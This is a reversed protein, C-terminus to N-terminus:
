SNRTSQFNNHLRFSKVCGSLKKGIVEQPSSKGLYACNAPNSVVLRMDTANDVLDVAACIIPLNHKENGTGMLVPSNDFFCKLLGCTSEIEEVSKKKEDLLHEMKVLESIDVLCDLFIPNGEVSKGIYVTDGQAYKIEGSPLSAKTRASLVTDTGIIELEKAIWEEVEKRDAGIDRILHKGVADEEKMNWRKLQYKSCWLLKLDAVEKVYEHVNIISNCYSNAAELWKLREPQGYSQEVFTICVSNSDFPSFSLLKESKIKLHASIPFPQDRVPKGTSLATQVFDYFEKKKSEEKLFFPSSCDWMDNFDEPSTVLLQLLSRNAFKLAGGTIIIVGDSIQDLAFYELSSAWLM